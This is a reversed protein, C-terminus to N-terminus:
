KEKKCWYIPVVKEVLAMCSFDFIISLVRSIGRIIYVMDATKDMIQENENINARFCIGYRSNQGNPSDYRHLIMYRSHHAIGVDNEPNKGDRINHFLKDM